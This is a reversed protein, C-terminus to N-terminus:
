TLWDACQSTTGWSGALHGVVDFVFPGRYAPLEVGPGYGNQELDVWEGLAPVRARAAVVKVKRLLSSVPVDGSAGSILDDLISM